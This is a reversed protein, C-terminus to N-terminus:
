IKYKISFVIVSVKFSIAINRSIYIRVGIGSDVNINKLTVKITTAITLFFGLSVVKVGCSVGIRTLQHLTYSM